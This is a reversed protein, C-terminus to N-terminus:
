REISKKDNFGETEKELMYKLSDQIFSKIKVGKSKCHKIVAKYIKRDVRASVITDEM